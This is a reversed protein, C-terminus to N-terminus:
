KLLVMKMVESFKEVTLKYFYVGSKMNSGDFVYKHKGATQIDNVLTLIGAGSTDFVKLSVFNQVPLEYNIVTFPNFPNPYNQQLKFSNPHGTNSSINTIVDVYKYVKGTTTGAWLTNGTRSRELVNFGAGDFLQQTWMSGSDSSYKVFFHDAPNPIYWCRDHNIVVDENAGMSNDAPQWSQAGDTTIYIFPGNNITAIGFQSNGFFIKGPSNFSLGANLPQKWTTGFDSSYAAGSNQMIVWIENGNVFVNGKGSSTSVQLPPQAIISNNWTEGGNTTKYLQGQYALVGVSNNKMQIVPYILATGSFSLTWSNGGDITRYAAGLSTKFASDKNVALLGGPNFSVAGRPIVTWSSGGDSTKYLTDFNTIFWFNNDDPASAVKVIAPRLTQYSINWQSSGENLFLFLAFILFLKKM